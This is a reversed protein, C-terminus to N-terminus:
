HGYTVTEESLLKEKLRELRTQLSFDIFNGLIQVVLGGIIDPDVKCELHVSKGSFHGMATAIRREFDPTLPGASTVTVDVRNMWENFLSQFREALAPLLAMRNRELLMHMLQTLQSSAELNGLAADLVKKRAGRELVPNLMAGRFVPDQAYVAALANLADAASQLLEPTETFVSQLARAYRDALLTSRM